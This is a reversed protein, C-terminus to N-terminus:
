STYFSMCNNKKFSDVAKACFIPAYKAQSINIMGPFFGWWGTLSGSSLSHFNEAWSIREGGASTTPIQDAFQLFTPDECASLVEVSIEQMLVVYLALQWSWLQAGADASCCGASVAGVASM